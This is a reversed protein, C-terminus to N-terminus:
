AKLATGTVGLTSSAAKNDRSQQLKKSLPLNELSSPIIVVGTPGLQAASVIWQNSAIFESFPIISVSMANTGM